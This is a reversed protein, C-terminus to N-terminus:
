LWDERITLSSAGFAKFFRSSCAILSASLSFSGRVLYKSWLSDDLNCKWTGPSLTSWWSALFNSPVCAYWFLSSESLSFLKCRNKCTWKAGLYEWKLSVDTNFFARTSANQIRPPNSGSIFITLFRSDRRSKRFSFFKGSLKWNDSSSSQFFYSKGICILLIYKDHNKEHFWLKRWGFLAFSNHKSSKKWDFLKRLKKRWILTTLM